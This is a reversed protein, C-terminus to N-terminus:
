DIKTEFSVVSAAPVIVTDCSDVTRHVPIVNEPEEFTNHSNMKEGSLVTLETKGVAKGGLLCIDVEADETCSYNTLTVTM